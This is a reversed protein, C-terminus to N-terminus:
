IAKVNSSITPGNTVYVHPPTSDIINAADIAATNALESNFFLEKEVQVTAQTVGCEKLLGIVMTAVRQQNVSPTVQIHISGVLGHSSLQWFHAHTYGLIGDSRLLKTLTHSVEEQNATALLLSQTSDRLLPIVSAFVLIAIFMSCIPDAILWGYYQILLSSIIVGVSGLTDALVHLFVGKMNSNGHHHHHGHDHHGHHHHGHHSFAFVGILNVLLGMVSVVVLRNTDIEPPELLRGIAELFVFFAIIVLFLANIFGSLIEARGYGYSYIRTPPWKSMVAAHLGVLLATCDFLMHFGDSILGLSNTWAGYLLEVFTFMLNLCLFYFIRRSDPNVLISHLSEKVWSSPNVEGSYLPLGSASYGVLTRSQGVGSSHSLMSVAILFLVTAIILGVSVDHKVNVWPPHIWLLVAFLFAAVTTALLIIHHYSPQQPSQQQSIGRSIDSYFEAVLVISCLVISAAVGVGLEVENTLWQYFAWPCLMVTVVVMTLAHLRKAGGVEAALNKKVYGQLNYMVIAVVLVLMQRKHDSMGFFAYVHHVVVSTHTGEPHDDQLAASRDNDFLLLTLLGLLYCIAGRSKSHSGCSLLMSLVAAMAVESYDWLLTTRVPGCSALGAIWLVNVIAVLVSYCCIKIWVPRTLRKSSSFPRQLGVLLGACGLTVLFLLLINPVLPLLDFLTFCVLVKAAKIAIIVVPAQTNRTRSSHRMWSM